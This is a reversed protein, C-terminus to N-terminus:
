SQIPCNPEKGTVIHFIQERWNDNVWMFDMNINIDEISPNRLIIFEDDQVSYVGLFTPNVGRCARESVLYYNQSVRDRLVMHMLFGKIEEDTEPRSFAQASGSMLGAVLALAALIQVLTRRKKNM